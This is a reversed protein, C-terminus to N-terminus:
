GKQAVSVNRNKTGKKYARLVAKTGKTLSFLDPSFTRDIFFSYNEIFNIKLIYQNKM